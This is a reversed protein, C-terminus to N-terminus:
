PSGGAGMGLRVAPGVSEGPVWRGPLMVKPAKGGVLVPPKLVWGALVESLEDESHEFRAPEPVMWSSTPDSVLSVLSVDQPVRIKRTALWGSAALYEYWSILILATPAPRQWLKELCALMAERSFPGGLPTQLSIRVGMERCVAEADRRFGRVFSQPRGLMPMAVSRHGLLILERIAKQMIEGGDYGVVPVPFGGENGSFFFTPVGCSRSWDALWPTGRAVILAQPREVQLVADWPARNRKDHGYDVSQVRLTWGHPTLREALRTVLKWFPEHPTAALDRPTFVVLHRTGEDGAAEAAVGRAVVEGRVVFRTRQGRSEIWGDARLRQLAESVTPVGVGLAEALFRVGPLVDPFRGDVILKRLAEEAVDARSKRPLSVAGVSRAVAERRSGDKNM